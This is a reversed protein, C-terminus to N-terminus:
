RSNEFRTFSNYSSPRPAPTTPEIQMNLEESILYTRLVSYKFTSLGSSPIGSTDQCALQEDKSRPQPQLKPSRTILRRMPFSFDDEEEVVMTWRQVLQEAEKNQLM